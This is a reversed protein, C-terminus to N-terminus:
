SGKLALNFQSLCVTFASFILLPIHLRSRLASLLQVEWTRGLRRLDMPTKQSGKALLAPGQSWDWWLCCPRGLQSGSCRGRGEIQRHSYVCTREQPCRCTSPSRAVRPEPLQDLCEDSLRAADCCFCSNPSFMKFGMKEAPSPSSQIHWRPHPVPSRVQNSGVVWHCLPM